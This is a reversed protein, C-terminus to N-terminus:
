PASDLIQMAVIGKLNAREIIVDCGSIRTTYNWPLARRHHYNYFSQRFSEADEPSELTIAVPAGDADTVMTITRTISDEDWVRM